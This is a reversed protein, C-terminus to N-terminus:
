DGIAGVPAGDDVRVGVSAIVVDDGFVVAATVVVGGGVIVAATVVTDVM